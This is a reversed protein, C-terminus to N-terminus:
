RMKLMQVLNCAYECTGNDHDTRIQNPLFWNVARKLKSLLLFMRILVIKDESNKDTQAPFRDSSKDTQVPLDKDKSESDKDTQTPLHENSKETHVPIEFDKNVVESNIPCTPCSNISNTEEKIPVDNFPEVEIEEKSEGKTELMRELENFIEKEEVSLETDFVSDDLIIWQKETAQLTENTLDEKCDKKEDNEEDDSTLM